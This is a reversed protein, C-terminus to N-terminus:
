ELQSLLTAAAARAANRRHAMEEAIVRRQKAIHELTADLAVNRSHMDDHRDSLSKSDAELQRLVSAMEGLEHDIAATEAVKKDEMIRISGEVGTIEAELRRLMDAAKVCWLAHDAADDSLRKAHERQRAALDDCSAEVDALPAVADEFVGIRRDREAITADAVVCQDVLDDVAAGIRESQESAVTLRQAVADYGVIRRQLAGIEDRLELERNFAGKVADRVAALEELALHAVTAQAEDILSDSKARVRRELEALASAHAQAAQRRSAVRDKIEDEQSRRRRRATEEQADTLEELVTRLSRVVSGDDAGRERATDILRRLASRRENRGAEAAPLAVQAARGADAQRGLAASLEAVRQELKRREPLHVARQAEVASSAADHRSAEDSLQRNAAASQAQREEGTLQTQALVMRQAALQSDLEKLRAEAENLDREQQAVDTSLKAAASNRATLQRTSEASAAAAERTANALASSQFALRDDADALVSHLTDARREVQRKEALFQADLVRRNDERRELARQLAGLDAPDHYSASQSSSRPPSYTAM